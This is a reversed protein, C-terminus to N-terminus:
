QSKAKVVETVQLSGESIRITVEEGEVSGPPRWQYATTGEESEVRHAGEPLHSGYFALTEDLPTALDFFWSHSTFTVPGGLDDYYSGGMEDELKAGSAIPVQGAYTAGKIPSKAPDLAGHKPGTKGIVTWLGLGVIGVILGRQVWSM